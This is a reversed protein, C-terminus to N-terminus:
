LPINALAAASYDGWRAEGFNCAPSCRGPSSLEVQWWFLAWRRSGRRGAM